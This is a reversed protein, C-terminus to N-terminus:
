NLGVKCTNLQLLITERGHYTVSYCTVRICTNARSTMYTHSECMELLSSHRTKFCNHRNGNLDYYFINHRGLTKNSFSIGYIMIRCRGRGRPTGPSQKQHHHRRHAGKPRHHSHHDPPKRLQQIKPPWREQNRLQQGSQLLHTEKKIAPKKMKKVNKAAPKKATPKKAPTTADM